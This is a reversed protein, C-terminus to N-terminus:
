HGHGESINRIFADLNADSSGGKAIARRSSKQLEKARQRMAIMEDSKNDMFRKVLESIEGRTVVGVDKKVKWGIKWDEVIHKTIPVQDGYIPFTLMPVGAFVAELTSNWGCHTWFAGISSHCLVKLQDCWPVVLSMDGNYNKFRGTEGRSVWLCRVGSDAIGGIIEDMQANSVSLFSGMSIYLVSCPPQSDLWQLYNVGNNSNTISAKKEELELYPIVPGIPYVPIPLNAKIADIAAAELEHFTTFLLYQAKKSVNSIGELVGPLALRGDGYTFNPLDAIRITSVGPIYDVLEDGRESLDVPFHQNQVLLEFHHLVSFVMAPMPFLSAVPINRRNGLGIAWYVYTDAVIAKVPPQLRDLLEEFHVEMKTNVAKLFGPLDKGRGVESPICNPVTAFRIQAPPKPESSIFGLWEETVVFSILIDATKSALLKCLNMMANIHSRGPYPMAVLHCVTPDPQETKAPDM